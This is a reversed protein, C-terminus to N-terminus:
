ATVPTEGAVAAAIIASEVAHGRPCTSALRRHISGFAASGCPRTRGGGGRERRPEPQPGGCADSDAPLPRRATRAALRALGAIRQRVGARRGARFRRRYVRPGRAQHLVVAAASFPVPGIQAFCGGPREPLNSRDGKRPLRAVLAPWDDVAEWDLHQWYDLGARRLRRDDLRFGLPRVLWLKAGLAVCTRGVNGTNEAIEPQHLVINLLPSEGGATAMVQEIGGPAARGQEADPRHRQAGRASVLLDGPWPGVAPGVRGGGARRRVLPRRGCGDPRALRASPGIRVPRCGAAGSRRQPRVAGPGAALRGEGPLLVPRRDLQVQPDGSDNGSRKEAPLDLFAALAQKRETVDKLLSVIQKVTAGDGAKRAMEKAAEGLLTASDYDEKAMEGRATELALRALSQNSLSDRPRKAAKVLTDVAMEHWDLRYQRGLDQLVGLLLNADGAAVAMDRAELYLVYRAAPNDHTDAAKQRLFRAFARKQIGSGAAYREQFLERIVKLAASQADAAPVELRADAPPKPPTPADAARRSRSRNPNRNRSRNPNRNPNRNRSRKRNRKRNRKHDEAPPKASAATAPSRAQAQVLSRIPPASRRM